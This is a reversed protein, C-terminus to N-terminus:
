QAGCAGCKKDSVKDIGFGNVRLVFANYCHANARKPDRDKIGRIKGHGSEPGEGFLMHLMEHIITGARNDIPPLGPKRQDADDWFRECLFLTINNGPMTFAFDNPPCCTADEEACPDTTPRCLFHIRRGGALERAVARFREAVSAGSPGHAWPIFTSPDHCFFATFLRATEKQVPNRSAPPVSIASDLKAAAASALKITEIIADGLMARCGGDHAPCVACAADPCPVCQGDACGTCALDFLPGTTSPSFMEAEAELNSEMLVDMLDELEAELELEFDRM